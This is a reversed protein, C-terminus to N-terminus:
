IKGRSMILLIRVTSSDEPDADAGAAAATPVITFQLDMSPTTPAVNRLACAIGKAQVAATDASLEVVAHGYMLKLFKNALTITYRGDESDTQAVTFGVCDQSAIAGSAGMTVVGTLLVLRENHPAQVEALDGHPM